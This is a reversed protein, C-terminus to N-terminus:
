RGKEERGTYLCLRYGPLRVLRLVCALVLLHQPVYVSSRMMATDSQMCTLFARLRRKKDDDATSFYLLPSTLPMTLPDPRVAGPLDDQTLDRFPFLHLGTVRPHITLPQVCPTITHHHNPKRARTSKTTVM